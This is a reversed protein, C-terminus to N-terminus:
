SGNFDYVDIEIDLREHTVTLSLGKIIDPALMIYSNSMNSDGSVNNFRWNLPSEDVGGFEYDAQLMIVPKHRLSDVYERTALDAEIHRLM